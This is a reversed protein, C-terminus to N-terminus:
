NLVEIAYFPYEKGKKNDFFMDNFTQWKLEMTDRALGFIAVGWFTVKFKM